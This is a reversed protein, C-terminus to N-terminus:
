LNIEPPACRVFQGQTQALDFLGGYASNDFQNGFMHLTVPVSQYLERVKFVAESHAKVSDLMPQMDAATLKEPPPVRM